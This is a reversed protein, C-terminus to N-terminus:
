FYFYFFIEMLIKKENSKKKKQTFFKLIEVFLIIPTSAALTGRYPVISLMITTLERYGLSPTTYPAQQGEPIPLNCGHWGYGGEPIPPNCGYYRFHSAKDLTFHRELIPLECGYYGFQPAKHQTFFM